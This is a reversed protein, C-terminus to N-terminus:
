SVLDADHNSLRSCKKVGWAELTEYCRVLESDNFIELATNDIGQFECRYRFLPGTRSILTILGVLEDGENVDILDSYFAFADGPTASAFWSGIVWRSGGGDKAQGWQLVPQLIRHENSTQFANFLFIAQGSDTFPAPPVKWKTRFSTIPEDTFNTFRTNAIWGDGDDSPAPIISRSLTHKPLDILAKTALNMLRTKGDSLHVAHGRPVRIVQSRPRLGGPTMVLDEAM